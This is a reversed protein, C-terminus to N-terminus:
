DILLSQVCHLTGLPLLNVMAVEGGTVFYVGLARVEFGVLPGMRSLLGILAGPLSAPPLKRPRVLQCPMVALVGPGFRELTVQTLPRERPAVMKGEVHLPM